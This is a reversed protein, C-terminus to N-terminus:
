VARHARTVRRARAPDRGAGRHRRRIRLHHGAGAPLARLRGRTRSARHGGAGGAALVGARGAPGAPGRGASAGRGARCARVAGAAGPRRVPQDRGQGHQEARRPHDRPVPRPHIGATRHGHHRRGSPGRRAPWAGRGGPRARRRTGAPQRRHRPRGRGGAGAAPRMGHVAPGAQAAADGRRQGPDPRAPAVLGPRGAVPDAGQRLVPQRRQAAVARRHGPGSPEDRGTGRGAGRSRGAHPRHPRTAPGPRRGRAATRVGRHRPVRGAAARSAGDPRPGPVEAAAVVARRGLAPRRPRRARAAGRGPPGPM